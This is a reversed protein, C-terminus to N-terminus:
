KRGETLMTINLMACSWKWRWSSVSPRPHPHPCLREAYVGAATLVVLSSSCQRGAPPAAKAGRGGHFDGLLPNTKGREAPPPRCSVSCSIIDHNRDEHGAAGRIVEPTM